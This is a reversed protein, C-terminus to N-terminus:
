TQTVFARGERKGVRLPSGVDSGGCKNGSSASKDSRVTTLSAAGISGDDVRGGGERWHQQRDVNGREDALLTAASIAQQHGMSKTAVVAASTASLM